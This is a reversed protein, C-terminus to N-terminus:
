YKLIELLWPSDKESMMMASSCTKLDKINDLINEANM